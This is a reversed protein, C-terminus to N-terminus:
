ETPELTETASLTFSGSQTGFGGVVIYITEGATLNTEGRSFTMPGGDDNCLIDNPTGLACHTRLELVTDLNPQGLAGGTEFVWAGATPATFSFVAINSNAPRGCYAARIGSDDTNAVIQYRPIDSLPIVIWDVPCDTAVFSCRPASTGEAVCLMGTDCIELTSTVDCIDGQALREVALCFPGLRGLLSCAFGDGCNLAGDQTCAEGEEVVMPLVCVENNSCVVGDACTLGDEPACNEGLNVTRPRTCAGVLEDFFSVCNLGEACRGVRDSVVDCREGEQRERVEECRPGDGLDICVLETRCAREPGCREGLGVSIGIEVDLRFPGGNNQWGDVFVYVSENRELQVSLTSTFGEGSDDDCARESERDDCVDRVYIVTDTGLSGENSTSFRWTGAVPATFLVVYESAVDAGGCSGGHLSGQGVLQGDWPGFGTQPMECSAERFPTQADNTFDADDSQGGDGSVESDSPSVDSMTGDSLMADDIPMMDTISSDLLGADNVGTDISLVDPTYGGDSIIIADGLSSDTGMEPQSMGEEMEVDPLDRSLCGAFLVPLIFCLVLERNKM